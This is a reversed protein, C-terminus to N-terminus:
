KVESESIIEDKTKIDWITEEETILEKEVLFAKIEAEKAEVAEQVPDKVPEPVIDIKLLQNQILVAIQEDTLKDSPLKVISDIYKGNKNQVTYRYEYGWPRHIQKGTIWTYNKIVV